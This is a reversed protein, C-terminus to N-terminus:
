NLAISAVGTVNSITPIAGDEMICEIWEIREAEPLQEVQAFLAWSVKDMSDVNESGNLLLIKENWSLSGLFLGVLIQINLM